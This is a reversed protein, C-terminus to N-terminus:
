PSLDVKGKSRVKWTCSSDDTCLKRVRYDYDGDPMRVLFRYSRRDSFRRSPESISIQGILLLQVADPFLRVSEQLAAALEPETIGSGISVTSGQWEINAGFMLECRPPLSETQTCREMWLLRVGGYVEGTPWSFTYSNTRRTGITQGGSVVESTAFEASELKADAPVRPSVEIVRAVESPSPSFATGGPWPAFQGAWANTMAFAAAGVALIRSMGGLM